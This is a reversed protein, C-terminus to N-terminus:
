GVRNKYLHMMIVPAIEPHNWFDADIFAWVMIRHAQLPTAWLVWASRKSPSVIDLLDARIVRVDHLNEFTTKSVLLMLNWADKLNSTISFEGYLTGKM